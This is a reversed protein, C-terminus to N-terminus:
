GLFEHAPATLAFGGDAVGVLDQGATFGVKLVFQPANGGGDDISSQGRFIAGFFDLVAQVFPVFGGFLEKNSDTM